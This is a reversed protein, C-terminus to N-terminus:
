AEGGRTPSSAKNSRVETASQVPQEVKVVDRDALRQLFYRDNDDVDMGSEPLLDRTVPHRILMGPAPKIFM